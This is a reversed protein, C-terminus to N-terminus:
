RSTGAGSAGSGSDPTAAPAGTGTPSNPTHTAAPEEASCGLFPATLALIAVLTLTRM